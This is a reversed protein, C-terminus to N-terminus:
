HGRRLRKHGMGGGGDGFRMSGGGSGGGGSNGMMGGGIPGMGMMDEGAAAFSSMRGRKRPWTGGGSGGGGSSGGAAAAAAAASSSTPAGVSGGNSSSSGGVPFGSGYGHVASSRMGMDKGSTSSSGFTPPPPPPGVSYTYDYDSPPRSGHSTLAALEGPLGIDSPRDREARDGRHSRERDRHDRDGRDRERYDRDKDRHDRSSGHTNSPRDSRDGRDRERDRGREGRERDRDRHERDRERRSEREGRESREGRDRDRERERDRNRGRRDRDRDRDRDRERDRDRHEREGRESRYDSRHDSRDSRESRHDGREAAREAREVARELREYERDRDRDRDRSERPERGDSRVWGPSSTAPDGPDWRHTSRRMQTGFSEREAREVRDRDREREGAGRRSMSLSSDRSERMEREERLREHVVEERRGASHLPEDIGGAVRPGEHDRERDRDRDRERRERDPASHSSGPPYPMRRMDGPAGRDAERDGGFRGALLDPRSPDGGGSSQRMAGRGRILTGQNQSNLEPQSRSSQLYSNVNNWIKNGQDRDGSPAVASRMTPMPPPGDRERERDRERDRAGRPGTPAINPPVSSAASGAGRPPFSPANDSFGSPSPVQLVKLRDPHIGAAEPNAMPPMEESPPPPSSPRRTDMSATLPVRSNPRTSRTTASAQHLNDMSVPGGRGRRLMGPRRPGSPIDANRDYVDPPRGYHSEQSLRGYAIDFHTQRMPPPPQEPPGFDRHRLGGEYDDHRTFPPRERDRDDRKGDIMPRKDDQRPPTPPRVRATRDDRERATRMMDSRPGPEPYTWHDRSDRDPHMAMRSDMRVSRDSERNKRDQQRPGYSEPTVDMWDRESPPRPPMRSISGPGRDFPREREPPGFRRSAEMYRGDQSERRDGMVRPGDHMSRYPRPPEPRNPLSPAPRGTSHNQRQPTPPHHAPGSSRSEQPPMTASTGPVVASQENRQEQENVELKTDPQGTARETQTRTESVDERANSVDSMNVEKVEEAKEHAGSIRYRTLLIWFM